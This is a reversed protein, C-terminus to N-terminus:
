IRVLTAEEIVQGIYSDEEIDQVIYSDEETNQGIYNDEEIDQGIYNKGTEQGTYSNEEVQGTYSDGSWHRGGVSRCVHQLHVTDSHLRVRRIRAELYRVVAAEHTQRCVEAEHHLTVSVPQREDLDRVRESVLHGAQAAVSVAVRLVVPPRLVAGVHLSPRVTVRQDAVTPLDVVGLVWPSHTSSTFGFLERRHM